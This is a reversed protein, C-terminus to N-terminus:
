FWLDDLEDPTIARRPKLIVALLKKGDVVSLPALGKFLAFFHGPFNDVPSTSVITFPNPPPYHEYERFRRHERCIQFSDAGIVVFEGTRDHVCACAKGLVKLLEAIGESREAGCNHCVRDCVGEVVLPPWNDEPIRNGCLVCGKDEAVINFNVVINGYELSSAQVELARAAGTDNSQLEVM